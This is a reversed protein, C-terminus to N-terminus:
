HVHGKKAEDRAENMVNHAVANIHECARCLTCDHHDPDAMDLINAM